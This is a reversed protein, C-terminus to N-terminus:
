EKRWVDEELRAAKPVDLVQTYHMKGQDLVSDTFTVDHRHHTDTMLLQVPIEHGTPDLFRVKTDKATYLSFGKPRGSGRSATKASEVADRDHPHRHDGRRRVKRRAGHGLEDAAAGRHRLAGPVPAVLRHREALDDVYARHGLLDCEAFGHDCAEGAHEVPPGDQRSVEYCVNPNRRIMDLKKGELACHLLIQGDSYTHNIPVVYLEGDCTMALHGLSESQLIAEMPERDSPSPSM